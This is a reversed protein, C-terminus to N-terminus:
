KFFYLTDSFTLNHNNYSTSIGTYTLTMDNGTISVSAYSHSSYSNTSDKVPFVGYYGVSRFVIYTHYSTYSISNNDLGTHSGKVIIINADAPITVTDTVTNFSGGDYSSLTESATDSVTSAVTTPLNVLGSGDVGDLLDSSLLGDEDTKVLRNEDGDGAVETANAGLDLYGAGSIDTGTTPATFQLVSSTRNATASTVVFHDTSWAVTETSSTATQIATQLATAIDNEDNLGQYNNVLDVAVNDYEVGDITTKIAGDNAAGGLSQFDALVVDTGGTLYGAAQPTGQIVDNYLGSAGNKLLTTEDTVM